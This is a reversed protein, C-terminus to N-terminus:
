RQAFGVSLCFFFAQGQLPDCERAGNSGELAPTKEGIRRPRRLLEVVAISKFGKPIRFCM